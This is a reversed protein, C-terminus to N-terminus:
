HRPSGGFLAGGALTADTGYRSFSPGPLTPGEPAVIKRKKREGPNGGILHTNDITASCKEGAVDAFKLKCRRCYVELADIRQTEFTRFSLRLNAHKAVKDSVHVEAAIIWTHAHPKDETPGSLDAIGGPDDDATRQSPIPPSDDPRDPFEFIFPQVRGAVSNGSDCVRVRVDPYLAFMQDYADRERARDDVGVGVVHVYRPLDACHIEPM